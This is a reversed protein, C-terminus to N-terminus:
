APDIGQGLSEDSWLDQPYDYELYPFRNEGRNFLADAMAVQADLYARGSAVEADPSFHVVVFLSDEGDHDAHATVASTTFGAPGLIPMLIKDALLRVDDETM